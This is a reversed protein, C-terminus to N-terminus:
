PTGGAPRSGVDARHAGRSALAQLARLSLLLLHFLRAALGFATLAWVVLAVVVFVRAIGDLFTVQLARALRYTAASYMGLPFVLGWYLPDYAFRFRRTGHRWVGLVFLMPIWWTATAWCALTLGKVFPMLPGLVPSRAGVGVLAAGALASIAVAGMNIWYPPMLDSPNFRFFMYRYFILSIIWVYIM